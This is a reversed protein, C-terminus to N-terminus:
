FTISYLNSLTGYAELATFLPRQSATYLRHRRKDYCRFIVNGVDTDALSWLRLEAYDIGHASKMHAMGVFDDQVFAAVQQTATDLPLGDVTINAYIVMDSRGEHSLDIDEWRDIEVLHLTDCLAGGDGIAVIDSNGAAKAFVSNNSIVVLSDESDINAWYVITNSISDPSLKVSLKYSDGVMLCVTDQEVKMQISDPMNYETEFTYFDGCSVLMTMVFFALINLLHKM